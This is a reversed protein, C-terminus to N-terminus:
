PIKSQNIILMKKLLIQYFISDVESYRYNNAINIYKRSNAEISSPFSDFKSNTHVIIKVPETTSKYEVNKINRFDNLDSTNRRYYLHSKYSDKIHQFVIFNLLRTKGLGNKGTILTYINENNHQSYSLDFTKNNLSISLIQFRM